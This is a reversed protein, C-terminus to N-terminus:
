QRFCQAPSNTPIGSAVSITLTACSAGASRDLAQTGVSTARISYTNRAGTTPVTPMGFTYRPNGSLNLGLGVATDCDTAPCGGPNGAASAATLSAAYCPCNARWREQAQQIQALTSVAEARRSARVQSMLSPGAIAALVGILAVTVMLEILTFGRARDLGTALSEAPEVM